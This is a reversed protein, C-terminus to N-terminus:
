YPRVAILTLFEEQCPLRPFIAELFLRLPLRKPINSYPSKGLQIRFSKLAIGARVEPRRSFRIKSFGNRVLINSLGQKSFLVLHRPAELGRWDKQYKKAGASEINPTDIYLTGGPKLLRYAAKVYESPDHLHEIVHNMTIVDFIERSETYRGIDGLLVKHGRNKALEVAKPDPDVGSVDWGVEAALSLFEGNGCGVDLLSQGPQPKHLYRFEANKTKRLRPYFLLLLAGLKHHPARQTGHHYNYYGNMLKRRFKRLKSLDEIPKRETTTTEHTYYVGYAKYISGRDPRPDLYAGLCSKCQYLNWKGNAVRFANDVLDLFLLERDYEGCIPCSHVRELENEPWLIEWCKKDLMENRFAEQIYFWYHHNTLLV